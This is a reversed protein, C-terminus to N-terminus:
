VEQRRGRRCRVGKWQGYSHTVYEKDTDNTDSKTKRRMDTRMWVFSFHAGHLAALMSCHNSTGGTAASLHTIVSWGLVILKLWRWLCQWLCLLGLTNVRYWIVPALIDVSGSSSAQCVFLNTCPSLRSLHSMMRMMIIIIITIIIVNNIFYISVGQSANGVRLLWSCVLIIM